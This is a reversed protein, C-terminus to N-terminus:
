ELSPWRVSMSEGIALQSWRSSLEDLHRCVQALREDLARLEDSTATGRIHSAVESMAQAMRRRDPSTSRALWEYWYIYAARESKASDGRGARILKKGRRAVGRRARAVARPPVARDAIPHFTGADGGAALQGFVGGDLDLQAEVVLHLLDHPMLPDYGPAPDMVLEPLGPRRAQIAYRRQGTRQFILLMYISENLMSESRHIKDASCSATRVDITQCSPQHGGQLVKVLNEM